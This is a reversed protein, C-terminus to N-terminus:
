PLNSKYIRATSNEERELNLHNGVKKQLQWKPPHSWVNPSRADEKCRAEAGMAKESHWSALLM